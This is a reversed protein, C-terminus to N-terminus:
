YNQSQCSGGCLASPKMCLESLGCVRLEYLLEDGVLRHADMIVVVCSGFAARVTM